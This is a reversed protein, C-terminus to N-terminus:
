LKILLEMIIYLEYLIIIDKVTLYKFQNNSSSIKTIDDDCLCSFLTKDLIERRSIEPTFSIKEFYLLAVKVKNLASERDDEIRPTKNSSTEESDEFLRKAM